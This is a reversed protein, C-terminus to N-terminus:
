SGFTTAPNVTLPQYSHKGLTWFIDMELLVSVELVESHRSSSASAFAFADFVQHM